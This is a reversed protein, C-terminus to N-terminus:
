RQARCQPKGFECEIESDSEGSGHRYKGFDTAVSTPAGLVTSGHMPQRFVASTPETM